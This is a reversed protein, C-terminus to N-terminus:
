DISTEKDFVSDIHDYFDEEITENKLALVENKVLEKCAFWVFEAASGYQKKEILTEFYLYNKQDLFWKEFDNM